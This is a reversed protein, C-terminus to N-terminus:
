RRRWRSRSRCSPLQQTPRQFVVEQSLMRFQRSLARPSSFNQGVEHQVTCRARPRLKAALCDCERSFLRLPHLDPPSSAAATPARSLTGPRGSDPHVLRLHCARTPVSCGDSGGNRHFPLQDQALGASHSSRPCCRHRRSRGWGSFTRASAREWLKESCRDAPIDTKRAAISEADNM